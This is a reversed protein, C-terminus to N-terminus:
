AADELAKRFREDQLIDHKGLVKMNEVLWGIWREWDEPKKEKLLRVIWAYVEGRGDGQCCREMVKKAGGWGDDGWFVSSPSPYITMYPMSERIVQECEAADAFDLLKAAVEVDVPMGLYSFAAIMLYLDQEKLFRGLKEIDEDTWTMAVEV